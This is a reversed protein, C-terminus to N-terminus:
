KKVIPRHTEVFMEKIENKNVVRNEDYLYILNNESDIIHQMLRRTVFAEYEEITAFNESEPNDALENWPLKSITYIMNENTRLKVYTVNDKGKWDREVNM